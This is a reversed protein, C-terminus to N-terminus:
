NCRWNKGERGIKKRSVDWKLGVLKEGDFCVLMVFLSRNTKTYRITLYVHGYADLRYVFLLGALKKEVEGEFRLLDSCCLM